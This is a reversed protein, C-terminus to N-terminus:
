NFEVMYRTFDAMAKDLSNAGVNFGEIGRVYTRYLWPDNVGQITEVMLGRGTEGITITKMM